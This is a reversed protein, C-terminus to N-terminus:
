ITWDRSGASDLSGSATPRTLAGRCSYRARTALADSRTWALEAGTGEVVVVASAARGNPQRFAAATAAMPLGSVPLASNLTERLQQSSGPPGDFNARKAKDSSATYGHRALVSLGPRNVKVSIRHFKGDRRPNKAYYGLAYYFSSQSVIRDLGGALDNANVIAIGGTDDALVRLRQQSLSVEKKVGVDPQQDLGVIGVDIADDLGVSLGRPDVPYIPVNSRRALMAVRDLDGIVSQGETNTVTDVPTGEGVLIIAKSRGDVAAAMGQIFGVLTRQATRVDFTQGGAVPTNTVNPGGAILASKTSIDNAQQVTPSGPSQGVITEVAALLRAKDNTFGLYTAARGTNSFGVLDSPAISRNIFERLFRRVFATRKPQISLDDVVILYIRGDAPQHNNTEVDPKVGSTIVAAAASAAPASPVPIDVVSFVSVDQPVGDELITFDQQTLDRVARRQQDLVRADVEVYEITASFRPPPEPPFQLQQAGISAAVLSFAAAAGLRAKM